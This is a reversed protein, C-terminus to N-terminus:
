LFTNRSYIYILHWIITFKTINYFVVGAKTLYVKNAGKM